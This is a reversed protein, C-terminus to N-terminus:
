KTEERTEDAKRRLFKRPSSKPTCNWQGAACILRVARAEAPHNHVWAHCKRCLAAWFRQDMLLPGLRGRMHHLEMTGSECSCWGCKKGALFARKAKIYAKHLKM